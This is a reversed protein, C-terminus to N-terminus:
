TTLAGHKHGVHNGNLFEERWETLDKPFVNYLVKGQKTTRALLLILVTNVNNKLILAKDVMLKM